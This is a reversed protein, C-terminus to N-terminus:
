LATVWCPCLAGADESGGGGGCGRSPDVPIEAKTAMFPGGDNMRRETWEPHGVKDAGDLQKIANNLFCNNSHFSHPRCHPLGTPGAGLGASGMSKLVPLPPPPKLLSCRDQGAPNSPTDHPRPHSRWGGREKCKVKTCPTLLSHEQARLQLLQAESSVSGEKM